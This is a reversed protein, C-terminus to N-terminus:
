APTVLRHRVQLPIAVDPTDGIRDVPRGLQYLGGGRPVLNHGDRLLQDGVDLSPDVGGEARVRRGACRGAAGAPRSAGRTPGSVIPAATVAGM